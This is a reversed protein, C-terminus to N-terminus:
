RKQEVASVVSPEVVNPVGETWLFGSLIANDVLQWQMGSAVGILMSLIGEAQFSWASGDECVM